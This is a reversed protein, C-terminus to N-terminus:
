FVEVHNAQHMWGALQTSELPSVLESIARGGILAQAHEHCYFLAESGYMPLASLQKELSKHGEPQQGPLLWRIGQEFFVVRHEVDFLGLSMVAEVIEHSQRGAYPASKIIILQFSM